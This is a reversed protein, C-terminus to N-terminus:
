SGEAGPPVILVPCRAIGVLSSSVSGLFATKLAGRGRSGVVILEAGEDDAIEVLQEAPLGVALRHVADTIGAGRAADELMRAGSEEQAAMLEERALPAANSLGGFPVAHSYTLVPEAVHALVLRAGLRDAMRAAVAVAANSDPSGDVGCVISTSM